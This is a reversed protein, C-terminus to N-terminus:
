IIKGPDFEVKAARLERAVLTVWAGADDMPIYVVGDFDSPKEIDGKVLACVHGRGLRGMFYGLELIVNQRARFRLKKVVEEAKADPAPKVNGVDDPTLLVIAFEADAHAEFKEILTRGSSAQENLIVATLGIREAFRASESLAQRDHGHVIFVLKSGANPGRTQGLAAAQAAVQPSEDIVDLRGRIGRLTNLDRKLREELLELEEQFDPGDGMTVWSRRYALQDFEEVMADSTFQRALVERARVRWRDYEADAAELQQPSDISTNLIASISQIETALRQDAVSRPVCLFPREPQQPLSQKRM